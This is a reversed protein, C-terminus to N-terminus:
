EASDIYRDVKITGLTRNDANRVLEVTVNRLKTGDESEYYNEPLDDVEGYDCRASYAPQYPFVDSPLDPADEAYILYYEAAQMLMHQNRWKEQASAVRRQASAGLSFLGALGMSLVAISIVVELLTFRGAFFIKGRYSM